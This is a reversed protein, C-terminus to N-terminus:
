KYKTSWTHTTLNSTISFRSFKKSKPPYVLGQDTGTEFWPTVRIVHGSSCLRSRMVPSKYQVDGVYAIAHVCVSQAAALCPLVATSLVRKLCVGSAYTRTADSLPNSELSYQLKSAHSYTCPRSRWQGVVQFVSLSGFLVTCQWNARFYVPPFGRSGNRQHANCSRRTAYTRYRSALPMPWALRCRFRYRTRRTGRRSRRRRCAGHDTWGEVDVAETCQRRAGTGGGVEWVALGCPPRRRIWGTLRACGRNWVDLDGRRPGAHM